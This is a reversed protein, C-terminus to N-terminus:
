EKVHELEYPRMNEVVQLPRTSIPRDDSLVRSDTIEQSGQFRVDAYCWREENWSASQPAMRIAIVQGIEGSVKSNVMQGPFFECVSYDAEEWKPASCGPALYLILFGVYALVALPATIREDPIKM